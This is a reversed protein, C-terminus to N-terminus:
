KIDVGGFLAFADVYLTTKKGSTEEVEGKEVGGFIKTEKMKLSVGDPLLVSTSGFISSIKLVAGDVIKADRLDLKVEGFVADVSAGKFDKSVKYRSDGFIATYNEGESFKANKIKEKVQPAKFEDCVLSIGILILIIPFILKMIFGWSIVGRALLLLLLGLALGFVSGRKDEDSFLGIISPVIIFLTWWGDFFIEIDAIGLANVAVIFGLLIFLVGWLMKTYSKM